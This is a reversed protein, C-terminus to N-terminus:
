LWLQPVVVRHRYEADWVYTDSFQYADDKLDGCFLMRVNSVFFETGVKFLSLNANQNVRLEDRHDRAFAKIQHQTLCLRDLNEGFGSFIKRFNGDVVMEYVKVPQEATPKDLVDCGWKKFNPDIGGTFVDQANALTELGSTASIVITREGSILKLCGITDEALEAIVTTLATLVTASIKNGNGIVKQLNDKNLIGQVLLNEVVTGTGKRVADTVIKVLKAKQRDIAPAIWPNMKDGKEISVGITKNSNSKAM